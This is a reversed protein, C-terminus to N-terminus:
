YALLLDPRSGESQEGDPGPPDDSPGRKIERIFLRAGVTILFGYLLVYAALSIVISALSVDPSNAQSTKLLGFVVWPQRGVETFIWGSWNAIIPLFVGVLASVYFWRPMRELWGPRRSAVVGVFALLFMLIGAGVMLRFSWYTVGVPPMYNGPGYKKQEAANIQNMGKVTGNPNLTAILSELDPICVDASLRKPHATFSATAFLSFCAHDSTNYLAEAAAMKMPQEQELLRGQGDGFIGSLIVAVLGIPLAMKASRSFIEVHRKRYLQWASIGVVLLAATTFAAFIVHPYALWATPNFLVAFINTLYAHHTKPDIKYGVPHQMWSNAVLIFYASLTTGIAVLWASVVHLKPSIRDWGFIWVGVFTSELFFAILGEMALPSGFIDGVYRSYLSWNMGFQFEMVIGTVVGIAVSILMFKGWYRTMRLYIEDRTRYWRTECLAVWATLGITMPVFLFHFITTIGFQLRAFDLANM